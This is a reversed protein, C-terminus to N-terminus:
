SFLSIRWPLSAQQAVVGLDGARPAAARLGAISWLLWSSGPLLRPEVEGPTEHGGEEGLMLKKEMALM